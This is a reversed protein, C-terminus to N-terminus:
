ESDDDEPSDNEPTPEVETTPQEPPTIWEREVDALEYGWSEMATLFTAADRSGNRWTDKAKHRTNWGDLLLAVAVRLARAPQTRATIGRAYAPLTDNYSRQRHTDFVLAQAILAEGGKVPGKAKAFKAIWATRVEVADGYAKNNAIVRRREAKEAESMPGTVSDSYPKRVRHGHTKPDVCVPAATPERDGWSPMEIVVAHGPCSAHAEPTVEDEGNRLLRVQSFEVGRVTERPRPSPWLPTRWAPAPPRPPPPAMDAAPTKKKAPSM